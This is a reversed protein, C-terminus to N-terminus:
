GGRSDLCLHPSFHKACPKAHGIDCTWYHPVELLLIEKWLLDGQALFLIFISLEEATPLKAKNAMPRQRGFNMQLTRDRAKTVYRYRECVECM